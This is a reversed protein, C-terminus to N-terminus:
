SFSNCNNTYCIISPQNILSSNNTLIRTMKSNNDYENINTNIYNNNKRTNNNKNLLNNYKVINNTQENSHFLENFLYQKYEQQKKKEFAVEKQKQVKRQEKVNGFLHTFMEKAKTSMLANNKIEKLTKDIMRNQVVENTIASIYKLKDNYLSQMEEQTITKDRDM